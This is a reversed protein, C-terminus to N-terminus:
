VTETKAFFINRKFSVIREIDSKSLNDLVYISGRYLFKKPFPKIQKWGDPILSKNVMGAELVTSPGNAENPESLISNDISGEKKGM